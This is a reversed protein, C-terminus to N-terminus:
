SFQSKENKMKISENCYGLTEICRAEGGAGAGRERDAHPSPTRCQLRADVQIVHKKATSRAQLSEATEALIGAGTSTGTGDLLLICYQM